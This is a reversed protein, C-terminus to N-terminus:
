NGDLRKLEKLIIKLKNADVNARPVKLDHSSMISVVPSKSWFQEDKDKPDKYRLDARSGEM